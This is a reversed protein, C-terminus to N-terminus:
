FDVYKQGSFNDFELVVPLGNKNNMRNANHWDGGTIYSTTSSYGGPLSSGSAALPQVLVDGSGQLHQAGVVFDAVDTGNPLPFGCAAQPGYFTPGFGQSAAYGKLREIVATFALSGNPSVCSTGPVTGGIMLAEGWYFARCGGDLFASGWKYYFDQGQTTRINPVCSDPGWKNMTGSVEIM